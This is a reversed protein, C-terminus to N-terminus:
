QGGYGYGPEACSLAAYRVSGSGLFCFVPRGSVESSIFYFGTIMGVPWVLTNVM